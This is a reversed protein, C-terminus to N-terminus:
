FRRSVFILEYRHNADAIQVARVTGIECLFTSGVEVPIEDYHDFNIGTANKTAEFLQEIESDERSNNWRGYGGRGDGRGGYGGDRNGFSDSRGYNDRNGFGGRGFSGSGGSGSSSPWRDGSGSPGGRGRDRDGSGWGGGSSPRPDRNFDSGGWAGGSGAREPGSTGRDKEKSAEEEMRKRLSPPVYKQTTKPPEANEAM